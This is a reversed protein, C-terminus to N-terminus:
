FLEHHILRRCQGSGVAWQGSGGDAAVAGTGDEVGVGIDFVVEGGGTDVGGVEDGDQLGFEAGDGAAEDHGLEHEAGAGRGGNVGRRHGGFAGRQAHESAQLSFLDAVVQFHHPAGDVGGDDGAVQRAFRFLEDFDLGDRGVEGDAVLEFVGLAEFDF